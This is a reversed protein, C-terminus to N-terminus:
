HKKKNCYPIKMEIFLIKSNFQSTKKFFSRELPLIKEAKSTHRVQKPVM